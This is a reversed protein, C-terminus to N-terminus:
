RAVFGPPGAALTSREIEDLADEQRLLMLLTNVAQLLDHEGHRVAPAHWVEQLPVEYGLAVPPRSLLAANLAFDPMVAADARGQAVLDVVDGYETAPVREIANGYHHALLVEVGGETRYAVRRGRLDDARRIRAQAPGVAVFRFRFTPRAFAVLAAREPFMVLTACLLDVAGSRLAAIRESLAVPVIEEQVGLGEALAHALTPETGGLRGDPLKYAWPWSEVWVGIRIRREALIRALAGSPAAAAPRPLVGGLLAVGLARRPLRM